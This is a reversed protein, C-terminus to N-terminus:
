TIYFKLSKNKKVADRLSKIHESVFKYTHDYDEKNKWVGDLSSSVWKEYRFLIGAWGGDSNSYCIETIWTPTQLLEVQDCRLNLSM